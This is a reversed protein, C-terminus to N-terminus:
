KLCHERVERVMRRLSLVRQRRENDWCPLLTNNHFLPESVLDYGSCAVAEEWLPTHPLPSYEALFPVAGTNDVFDITRSVSDVSQGPLGMIIYAGIDRKNYGAKQLNHVAEEFEGESVKKDLVEHQLMDSTELGLRITRFGAVRLLTAIEPSIERVHLANPTHFRLNLNRKILGQLIPVIHQEPDVLLADDYFAFDRVGFRSHWYSIEEVVEQHDRRSFLPYLFPSACYRCRYPCGTSTLICVYEINRVMDFAPFVPDSKDMIDAPFAISFRQMIDLVTEMNNLTVEDAIYDAGSFQRAHQVCLRAYTGGLIVPVDPHIEKAIQVAEKVGPYWYTMLSTIFVACPNNIRKLEKIFLQRTIGYRSYTRPLHKLPPPKPIEEKWFKGTGFERRKPSKRSRSGTMGPHHVDLCDIIHAKFGLKRLYGALYLLGLPKSWLDYAAFDHIWPNILIIKSEM